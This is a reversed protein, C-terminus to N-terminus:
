ESPMEATSLNSIYPASVAACFCVKAAECRAVPSIRPSEFESRYGILYVLFALEPKSGLFHAIAPTETGTVPPVGAAKLRGSAGNAPELPAASKYLAVTVQDPM